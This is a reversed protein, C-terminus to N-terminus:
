FIANKEDLNKLRSYSIQSARVIFNFCPCLIGKIILGIVQSHFYFTHWLYVTDHIQCELSDTYVNKSEALPM